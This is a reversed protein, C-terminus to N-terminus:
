VPLKRRQLNARLIKRGEAEAENRVIRTFGRAKTGPHRVAKKSRFPGTAQGSGRFATNNPRTKAAYNTKFTLNNKGRRRGGGKARITHAPTGEDVFRWVKANPGTAKVSVTYKTRQMVFTPKNKWPEVITEFRHQAFRGVSNLSEDFAGRANDALKRVDPYSGIPRIRVITM